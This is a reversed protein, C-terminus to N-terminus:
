PCNRELRREQDGGCDRLGSIECRLLSISRTSLDGTYGEGRHWTETFVQGTDLGSVPRLSEAGGRRAPSMWDRGAPEREWVGRGGAEEHENWAGGNQGLVGANRWRGGATVVSIM